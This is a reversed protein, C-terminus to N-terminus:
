PKGARKLLLDRFDAHLARHHLDYVPLKDSTDLLLKEGAPNPNQTIYADQLLATPDGQGELSRMAGSFLDIGAAIESRGAFLTLDEAVGRLYADLASRANAAAATLRQEAQSTVIGNSAVYAALALSAGTVLAIAVVMAPLKFALKLQTTMQPVEPTTASSGKGLCARLEEEGAM